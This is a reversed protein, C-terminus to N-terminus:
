PFDALIEAVQAGTLTPAAKGAALLPLGTLSDTTIKVKPLPARSRTLIVREGEVSVDLSEGAELGLIRRASVPLVIQGKSSLKTKL